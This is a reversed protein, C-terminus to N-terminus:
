DKGADPDKGILQSNLDPPWLIPAEAEADTLLHLHSMLELPVQSFPCQVLYLLASRWGLSWDCRLVSSKSCAGLSTSEWTSYFSSIAVGVDGDEEELAVPKLGM